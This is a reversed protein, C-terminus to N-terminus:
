ILRRNFYLYPLIRPAFPNTDISGSIIPCRLKDGTKPPTRTVRDKTKQTHQTSRQKGKKDKEKQGDHQKDKSKRIRIEGKTEEFEEKGFHPTYFVWISGKDPASFQLVFINRSSFYAIIHIDIITSWISLLM